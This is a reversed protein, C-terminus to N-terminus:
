YGWHSVFQRVTTESMCPESSMQRVSLDVLLTFSVAYRVSSQINGQSM